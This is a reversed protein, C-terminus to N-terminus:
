LKVSYLSPDGGEGPKLDIEWVNNVTRSGLNPGLGITEQTYFRKLTGDPLLWMQFQGTTPMTQNERWKGGIAIAGTAAAAPSQAFSLGVWQRSVFEIDERRGFAIDLATSRDGMSPAGTAYIDQVTLRRLVTGDPGTRAVREYLPKQDALDKPPPYVFITGDSALLWQFPEAGGRRQRVYVKAPKEYQFITETVVSRGDSTQTWLIRGSMKEQDYYKALMKSVLVNPSEPPEAQGFALIAALALTTM